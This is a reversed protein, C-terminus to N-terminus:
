LWDGLIVINKVELDLKLGNEKFKVGL